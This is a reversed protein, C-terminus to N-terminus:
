KSSILIMPFLTGDIVTFTNDSPMIIFEKIVENNAKDKIIFKYHGFGSVTIAEDSNYERDSILKNNKYGKVKVVGGDDKFTVIVEKNGQYITGEEIEVVEDEQAEILAEPNKKDVRFLVSYLEESTNGVSDKVRYVIQVKRTQDSVSTYGLEYGEEYVVWNSPVIGDIIVKYEYVINNAGTVDNGGSLKFYINNANTEAEIGSYEEAKIGDYSITINGNVPDVTDKIRYIIVLERENNSSDKALM